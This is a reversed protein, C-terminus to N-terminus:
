EVEEVERKFVDVAFCACAELKDVISMCCAEEAVFFGLGNVEFVGCSEAYFDGVLGDSWEGILVVVADDVVAVIDAFLDPVLFVAVVLGAEFFDRAFDVEGRFRGEFRVEYVEGDKWFFFGDVEGFVVGDDGFVVVDGFFVDILEM